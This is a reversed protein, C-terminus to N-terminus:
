NAARKKSSRPSTTRDPLLKQAALAAHLANAVYGQELARRASELIPAVAHSREKLARNREQAIREELQRTLLQHILAAADADTPDLRIAARALDLAESINGAQTLAAARSLCDLAKRRAVGATAVLSGRLAVLRGLEDAVEPADPEVELFGRLQQVAEDYRGRRFISRARRIEEVSLQRLLEAAEATARETALRRKLERVGPSGPTKSDAEKLAAEALEFERDEIAHTARDVLRQTVLAIRRQERAIRQEAEALLSSAVEHGPALALAQRCEAVATGWDRREIAQRAATTRVAIQEERREQEAALPRASEALERARSSSPCAACSRRSAVCRAEPMAVPLRCNVPNFNPLM